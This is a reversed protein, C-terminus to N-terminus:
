SGSTPKTGWATTLPTIACFDEQKMETEAQNYLREFEEVTTVQYKLLFPKLLAFGILSNQTLGERYPQGFSHNLLTAREQIHICGAQRLFYNLMPAVGLVHGSHSFGQGALNLAKASLQFLREYAAYNCSAVESTTVRLMGGPRLVRICEQVVAPWRLAPLFTELFRANVMDFQGDPFDLPQLVDMVLFSANEEIDRVQAQANAYAIMRQSIDIGIVGIGQEKYADALDLAWYGPGCAVDLVSTVGALDREPFLGGLAETLYLAQQLLRTQETPDEPNIFYTTNSSNMM